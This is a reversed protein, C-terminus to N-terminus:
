NFIFDQEHYYYTGSNVWEMRVKYLGKTFGAVPLAYKNTASAKITIRQDGSSNSFRLFEIYGTEFRTDTGYPLAVTVNDGERALVVTDKLASLNKKGDIIGQYLLEKEYYDSDVMENTQKMSIVVMTLIGAVFLGLIIIVKYGWSM